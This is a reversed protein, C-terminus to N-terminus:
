KGFKFSSKLTTTGWEISLVGGNPAPKLDIVLSEVPKTLAAKDLAVGAVDKAAQHNMGHGSVQSNFILEFRNSDPRKLWLSYRGKPIKISGFMLDVPSSIVTVEDKGLRWYGGTPLKSLMDRGQLSPRGYDVTISGGTFKLEAKGREGQAFAAVAFISILLACFAHVCYKRMKMEEGQRHM